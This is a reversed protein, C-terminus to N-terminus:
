NTIKALENEYEKQFKERLLITNKVTLVESEKKRAEERELFSNNQTVKHLPRTFLEALNHKLCHKLGKKAAREVKCLILNYEDWGVLWGGSSSYLDEYELIYDGIRWDFLQSRFKKLKRKKWFM